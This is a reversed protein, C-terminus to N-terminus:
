VEEPFGSASARDQDELDLCPGVCVPCGIQEREGEPLDDFAWAYPHGCPYTLTIMRRM